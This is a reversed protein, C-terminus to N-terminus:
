YQEVAFYNKNTLPLFNECVKQDAIHKELLIQKQKELEAKKEM